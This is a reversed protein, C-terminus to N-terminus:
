GGSTSSVIGSTVPSIGTIVEGSAQLTTATNKTIIEIDSVQATSIFIEDSESRIEFLSGFAQTARKPVIVISVINPSLSSIIYSALEQFYFTDGFDWNEIAFFRNISEIVQSRIESDNIAIDPNKVVKFTVQLNKDAKEGFLMKYKVPHLVVEDSISKISDIDKKYSKSLQDTSPPLPMEVSNGKLYKRIENDYTKTLVYTDIINSSAPDIRYDSDAVHIYQFKLKDRGEFARYEVTTTVNNLSKNNKRFVNEDRLYFIQGDIYNNRNKYIQDNENQVIVITNDLNDFYRYDDVGDSTTYKKQFILSNEEGVIEKFIDPNDPVFDDDFDFFKLEIKRTDVYGDIDKYADSISWDFDKNYPEFSNGPQTNISLVKITDKIVKSTKTDYVKDASDFYFRIENDSEFVYRLNRYTVEYKEGDTKFYMIWSSDLGLGDTNGTKGLSFPDATNVNEATILRWRRESQDYRLAFDKYAFIRDIMQVKLDDLLTRSFRPIIELLVSDKSIVDNFVIPGFGNPNITTGNDTVQQVMSWKYLSTNEQNPDTTLEGNDLFYFGEPPSFKCLSGSEIYKLSSNTFSGVPYANNDSSEFYGTSRNSQTTIANWKALLDNVFINTYKEQYYNRTSVRGLLPEIKNYIIGEVDSQTRFTFSIKEEYEQKYLVGDNAFINTKSYKGSPDQLDYYRSIGSAIRNVSKTKIINQNIGLPGINYDEATILRNQTYYTSPANTRISESSESIKSNDITTKLSLGLTLREQTNNRSLYPIEIVIDSISNPSVIMNRNDSTRYYIRFNGSPLNGFVGDSFVLDIRDEIRTIVSYLNRQNEFISNYIVNNGEIADVKQWFESEVRNSDLKYLWVDTNNINVADISIRQNPLPNTVSFESTQLTGQRFHMFFGSNSSNAGQGDDRYLLSPPNGSVPSEEKIEGNDIVTSVIEFKTSIGEVTKTFPFIPLGTNLGNIKYQETSVNEIIDNNIPTGVPNDPMLAANLIRVFQEYYNPNSRDNWSVSINSLNFGSSDVVRETTNVSEIKLLGNASQNRAPNYSILRALRLISERREATELFNERANLDVRFSLNQGLFAILDILALYESSEIYDNFDEPYNQRLYSIMTRRLNDFDYSQFDANRFSQYIKKWDETVLLRSQRDTSSM